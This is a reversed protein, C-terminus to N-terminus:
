SVGQPLGQLLGESRVAECAGSRRILDTLLDKVWVGFRSQGEQDEIADDETGHTSSIEATSM